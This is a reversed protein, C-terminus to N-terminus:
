SVDVLQKISLNIHYDSSQTPHSDIDVVLQLTMSPRLSSMMAPNWSCGRDSAQTHSVPKQFVVNALPTIERDLEITGPDM